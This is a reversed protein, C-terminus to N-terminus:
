GSITKGSRARSPFGWRHLLWVCPPFRVCTCHRFSVTTKGVISPELAEPDIRFVFPIVPLMRPRRWLALSPEWTRGSKITQSSMSVRSLAPWGAWTRFRSLMRLLLTSPRAPWSRVSAQTTLPVIRAPPHAM